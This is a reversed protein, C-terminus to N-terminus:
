EREKGRASVCDRRAPVHQRWREAFTRPCAQSTRPSPTARGGCANRESVVITRWPQVNGGSAAWTAAALVRRLVNAASPDPRLRRVARLACPPM